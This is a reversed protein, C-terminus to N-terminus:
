YVVIGAVLREVICVVLAWTCAIRYDLAEIMWVFALAVTAAQRDVVAVIRSDLVVFCEPIKWVPGVVVLGAVVIPVVVVGGIPDVIRALSATTLCRHNVPRRVRVFEVVIAATAVGDVAAAADHAAVVVALLVHCYRHDQRAVAAAVLAAFSSPVAV